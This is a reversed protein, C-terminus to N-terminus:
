KKTRKSEFRAKADADLDYRGGNRLLNLRRWEAHVADYLKWLRERDDCLPTLPCMLECADGILRQAAEVAELAMDMQRRAEMQSATPTKQKM